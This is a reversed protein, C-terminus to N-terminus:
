PDYGEDFLTEIIDKMDSKSGEKILYKIRDKCECVDNCYNYGDSQYSKGTIEKGCYEYACKM